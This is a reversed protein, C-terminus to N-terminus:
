VRVANRWDMIPHKGDDNACSIDLCTFRADLCDMTASTTSSPDLDCAQVIKAAAAAAHQSYAFISKGGSEEELECALLMQRRPDDMGDQWYRFRVYHRGFAGGIAVDFRAFPRSFCRHGLAHNLDFITGSCNGNACHFLSTALGLRNSGATEAIAGEGEAASLLM